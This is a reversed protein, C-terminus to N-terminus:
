KREGLVWCRIDLVKKRGIEERRYILHLDRMKDRREKRKPEEIRKERLKVFSLTLM